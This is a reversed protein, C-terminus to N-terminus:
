EVCGFDGIELVRVARGRVEGEGAVWVGVDASTHGRDAWGDGKVRHYAEVVHGVAKFTRTPFAAFM